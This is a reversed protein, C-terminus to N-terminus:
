INWQLWQAINKTQTISMLKLKINTVCAVLMIKDSRISTHYFSVRIPGKLLGVIARTRIEPVVVHAKSYMASTFRRIWTSLSPTHSVAAHAAQSHELYLVVLPLAMHFAAPVITTTPPMLTFSRVHGVVELPCVFVMCLALRQVCTKWLWFLKHESHGSGPLHSIRRRHM